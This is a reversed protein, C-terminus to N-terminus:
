KDSKQTRKVDSNSTRQKQSTKRQDYHQKTKNIKVKITPFLITTIQVIQSM